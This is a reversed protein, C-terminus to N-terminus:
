QQVATLHNDWFVGPSKLTLRRELTEAHVLHIDGTGTSLAFYAGVIAVGSVDMCEIAGIYEGDTEYFVAHGGRPSTAVIRGNISHIAVGGTYNSLIQFSNKPPSLPQIGNMHHRILLPVDTHSPGEYQLGTVVADNAGVSLHRISLQHDDLRHQAVLEGNEVNIYALSPDMNEINLKQRGYAPHTYIGGNAVVLTQGDSLFQLQHAGVGYTDMERVRQYGNRVDYVGIRSNKPTLDPSDGEDFVNETAYLFDGKLDFVTHGYFHREAPSSIRQHLTYQGVDCLYLERGPRRSALVIQPKNPHLTADHGRQPIPIHFAEGTEIDMIGFHFQGNSHKNAGYLIGSIEM